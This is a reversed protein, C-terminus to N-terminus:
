RAEKRLLTLPPLVAQQLRGLRIPLLFVALPVALEQVPAAAPSATTQADKGNGLDVIPQGVDRGMMRRIANLAIIMMVHTTLSLEMSAPQRKLATCEWIPVVLPSSSSLTKLDGAAIVHQTLTISCGRHLHSLLLRTPAILQSPVVRVMKTSLVAMFPAAM